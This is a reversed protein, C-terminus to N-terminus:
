IAEPLNWWRELTTSAGAQHVVKTVEEDVAVRTELAEIGKWGATKIVSRVGQPDAVDIYEVPLHTHITSGALPLRYVMETFCSKVIAQGFWGRVRVVFTSLVKLKSSFPTVPLPLQHGVANVKLIGVLPISHQSVRESFMFAVLLSPGAPTIKSIVLGSQGFVQEPVFHPQVGQLM